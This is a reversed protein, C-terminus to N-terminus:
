LLEGKSKGNVTRATENEMKNVAVATKIAMEKQAKDRAIDTMGTTRMREELFQMSERQRNLDIESQLKAMQVREASAIKAMAINEDTPIQAMEQQRRQMDNMQAEMEQQAANAIYDAQNAVIGWEQRLQNVLPKRNPDRDLLILHRTFHPGLQQLAKNADQLAYQQGKWAEIISVMRQMHKPAHVAHNQDPSIEVQEGQELQNNEISAINDEVTPQKLLDEPPMYTGVNEWGAIAAIRGRLVAHKGREGPLAALTQMLLASEILAASQSGAGQSRTARVEMHSPLKKMNLKDKHYAFFEKAVGREICNDKWVKCFEYGPDNEKARLMKRVINVFLQDLQNYYITTSNKQLRSEQTAQMNVESVSRTGSVNSSSDPGTFINNNNQLMQNFVGLTSLMANINAGMPNPIFEMDKNVITVGGMAIRTSQADKGRTAGSKFIATGARSNADFIQNIGRTVAEVTAYNKHGYGKVGHIFEQDQTRTLIQIAESMDDYQRDFYYAIEGCETKPHIGIKTVKGDHEKILLWVWAIDTKFETELSLDNNRVRRVWVACDTTGYGDDTKKCLSAEFLIKELSESNWQKPINKRQSLEWLFSAKQTAEIVVVDVDDSYIRAGNPYHVKFNDGVKFRWDDEDDWFLTCHGFKLYQTQSQNMYPIFRNWSRIVKDFEESVIKGIEFNTYDDAITTKFEVLNEVDQLLNWYPAAISEFLNEGTGWNVNSMYELGAKTLKAPDYPAKGSLMGEVKADKSKRLENSDLIGKFVTRAVDEKDPAIRNHQKYEEEFSDEESLSIEVPSNYDM